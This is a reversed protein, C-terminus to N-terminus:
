WDLADEVHEIRARGGLAVAIVDLRWDADSCEHAELWAQVAALLRERKRTTISAFAEDTRAQRRTRVELFVLTNGQRAIIDLEGQRCHWNTGLIEYGRRRLHRLALAEGRRGTRLTHM